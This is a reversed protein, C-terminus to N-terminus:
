RKEHQQGDGVQEPSNRVLERIQDEAKAFDLAVYGFKATLLM